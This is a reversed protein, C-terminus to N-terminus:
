LVRRAWDDKNNQVTVHQSNVTVLHAINHKLIVKKLIMTLTAIFIEWKLGDLLPFLSLSFFSFSIFIPFLFCIFQICKYTYM